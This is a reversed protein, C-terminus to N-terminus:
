GSKASERGKLSKSSMESKGISRRAIDKIATKHNVENFASPEFDEVISHDTAVEIIAHSGQEDDKSSMWSRFRGWQDLRFVRLWLPEYIYVTFITIPVVLFIWLCADVAASPRIPYIHYDAPNFQKVSGDTLDIPYNFIPTPYMDEINMAALLNYVQVM